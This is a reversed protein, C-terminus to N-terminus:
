SVAVEEPALGRQATAVAKENGVYDCVLVTLDDEQSEAWEGVKSVILDATESPSLAASAQLLARLREGGFEM